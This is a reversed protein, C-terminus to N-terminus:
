GVGRKTIIPRIGVLVRDSQIWDDLLSDEDWLIGSWTHLIIKRNIALRGFHIKNTFLQDRKLRLNIAAVWRNHIEASTIDQKNEFRRQHRLNWIVQMSTSVLVTFLRQKEPIPKGSASKFKLLNCGLLVGWSLRPWSSLSYKYSWLRACLAWIQRQGPAACDLMIHELTEDVKCHTCLGFIQLNDIHKWFDGLRFINHVCKWLLQTDETYNSVEKISCRIRDLNIETSKRHPHPKLANIAKTFYRQTGNKLLVGPCNFM